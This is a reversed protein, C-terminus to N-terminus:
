KSEMRIFRAPIRGEVIIENVAKSWKSANRKWHDSLVTSRQIEEQIQAQTYIRVGTVEGREIAGRLGGLDLVIIVEGFDAAVDRDVAFSTYPSHNKSGARFNGILVEPVTVKRGNYLGQPYAPVLDGNTDM